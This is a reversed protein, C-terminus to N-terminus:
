FAISFRRLPALVWVMEASSLSALTGDFTILLEWGRGIERQEGVAILHVTNEV